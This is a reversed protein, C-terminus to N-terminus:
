SKLPLFTSFQNLSSPLEELFRPDLQLEVKTEDPLEIQVGLHFKPSVMEDVRV